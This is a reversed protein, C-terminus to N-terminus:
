NIKQNIFSTIDIIQTTYSIKLSHGSEILSDLIKENLDLKFVDTTGKRLHAKRGLIDSKINLDFRKLITIYYYDPCVDIFLLYDYGNLRLSEHQFGKQKGRKATKIEIKKDNILIDYTGDKSNIDGDYVHSIKGDICIKELLLEGVKGSCDNKLKDLSQFPSEKWDSTENHSKFMNDSLEQLMGLPTEKSYIKYSKKLMENELKLSKIEARLKELEDYSVIKNCSRKNHGEKKCNSCVMNSVEM